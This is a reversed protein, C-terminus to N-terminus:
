AVQENCDNLLENMTNHMLDLNAALPICGVFDTDTPFFSFGLSQILDIGGKISAIRDFVKNSVKFVRFKPNWPEKRANDLYKKATTIIDRKSAPAMKHRDDNENIQEETRTAQPMEKGKGCLLGISVIGAPGITGYFGVLEFSSPIVITTNKTGNDGNHPTSAGGICLAINTVVAGKMHVRVATISMEDEGDSMGEMTADMWACDSSISSSPMHKKGEQGNKYIAQLGVIATPNDENRLVRLGSVKGPSVFMSGSAIDDFQSFDEFSNGGSSSSAGFVPPLAQISSWMGCHLAGVDFSPTALVNSSQNQEAAVLQIAKAAASNADMGETSVLNTFVEKIRTATDPSKTVESDEKQQDGEDANARILYPSDKDHKAADNNEIHDENLSAALSEMIAQSDAPIRSMWDDKVLKAIADDGRQCARSVEMRSIDHNVVIQGSMADLVVLCPIGRVGFQMSITQQLFRGDNYPVALWPMTRYYQAFSASDRDSSVFVIELGHTPLVEEKLHAYFECLMPTFHRCPGCWHASFYLAVLKCNHLANSTTELIDSNSAHRLLNPGLLREFYSTDLPVDFLPQTLPHSSAEDEDENDHDSIMPQPWYHYTTWSSMSKTSERNNQNAADHNTWRVLPFSSPGILYIPCNSRTAYGVVGSGGGSNPGKDEQLFAHFARRKQSANSLLQTKLPMIQEPLRMLIRRPITNREVHLKLAVGSAPMTEVDNPLVSSLFPPAGPLSFTVRIAAPEVNIMSDSIPEKICQYTAWGPHYNLQGIYLLMTNATKVSDASSSDDEAKLVFGGLRSLRRKTTISINTNNRSGCIAVVRGNPVTHLFSAMKSWHLFTRSQLITGTCEDVIVVSISDMNEDKAANIAACPVGSVVICDRRRQCQMTDNNRVINSFSKVLISVTDAGHPTPHFTEVHFFKASTTNNSDDNTAHKPTNPPLPEHTDSGLEGRAARWALSGSIRGEKYSQHDEWGNGNASLLLAARRQTDMFFTQEARLRRDLEDLQKSPLSRRLDANIRTLAREVVTESSSYERRRAVFEDTDYKRTYRRTVDVVSSDTGFAIVFNLRKGWGKEYMSPQDIVGECSDAHIWRNQQTSWIETWVHDTFDLVYRVDFGVARCLFGFANAYEGCRGKRSEFLIKTASNYRPFTTKDNNCQPCRYMEVRGAGGQKEDETEPGRVGAHETGEFGCSSCAPANVWSMVEKQFYKTLRRLLLIDLDEDVEEETSPIMWEKESCVFPDSVGSCTTSITDNCHARQWEPVLEQIPFLNRAKPFWEKADKEWAQVTSVGSRLRPSLRDEEDESM